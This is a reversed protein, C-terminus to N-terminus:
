GADITSAVFGPTVRELLIEHCARVSTSRRFLGKPGAFWLCALFYKLKHHLDQNTTCFGVQSKALILSLAMILM